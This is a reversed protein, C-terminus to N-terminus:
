RSGKVANKLKQYNDPGLISKAWDKIAQIAYEGRFMRHVAKDYGTQAVMQYSKDRLVPRENPCSLAKNHEVAREKDAKDVKLALSDALRDIVGRGKETNVLLLSVGERMRDESVEQPSVGWYDAITLDSVRNLGCYRCRYCSERLFVNGNFGKFFTQDPDILKTGDELTVTTSGGQWGKETEKTRFALDVISRGYLQQKSAVFSDVLKRSVVGHCLVDITLLKGRSIRRADLYSLLGAVQCATGSFLITRGGKLLDAVQCFIGETDAQYYKSKLLYELEERNHAEVHHLLGDSERRVGFVIGGSDLVSRAVTGFIGGSSSQRVLAKDTSWAMHMKGSSKEVMNNSPCVRRCADCGICRSTDIVPYWFGEQDEDFAIAGTPCITRCAGCGTCDLHSCIERADNKVHSSEGM